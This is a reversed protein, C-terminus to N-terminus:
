NVSGTSDLTKAFTQTFQKHPATHKVPISERIEVNWKSVSRCGPFPSKPSGWEVPYVAWHEVDVGFALGVIAIQANVRESVTEAVTAVCDEVVM